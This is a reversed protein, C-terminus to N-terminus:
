CRDSPQCVIRGAAQCRCPVNTKAMQALADAVVKIDPSGIPPEDQKSKLKAAHAKLAQLSTPNLGDVLSQMEDYDPAGMLVFDHFGDRIVIPEVYARRSFNGWEHVPFTPHGLLQTSSVVLLKARRMM